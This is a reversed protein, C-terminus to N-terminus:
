ASRAMFRIDSLKKKLAAIEADKDKDSLQLSHLQDQQEAMRTVQNQLNVIIQMMLTVHTNSTHKCDLSVAFMVWVQMSQSLMEQNSHSSNLDVALINRDATVVDLQTQAKKLVDQAEQLKHGFVDLAAAAVWKSSTIDPSVFGKGDSVIDDSVMHSLGTWFAAEESAHQM